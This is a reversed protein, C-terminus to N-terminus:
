LAPWGEWGPGSGRRQLEASHHERSCVALTLSSMGRGTGETLEDSRSCPHYLLEWGRDWQQSQVLFASHKMQTVLIKLLPQGIQVVSMKLLPEAPTCCAPAAPYATGPVKASTSCPVPIVRMQLKWLSWGAQLSLLSSHLTLNEKWCDRLTGPVHPQM